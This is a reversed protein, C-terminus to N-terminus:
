TPAVARARPPTLLTCRGRFHLPSALYRETRKGLDGEFLMSLLCTNLGTLLENGRHVETKLLLLGIQLIEVRLYVLSYMTFVYTLM